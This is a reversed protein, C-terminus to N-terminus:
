TLNKLLILVLIVKAKMPLILEVHLQEANDLKFSYSVPPHVSASQLYDSFNMSEFLTCVVYIVEFLDM